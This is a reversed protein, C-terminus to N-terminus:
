RSPPNTGNSRLGLRVSTVRNLLNDESDRAVIFTAPVQVKDVELTLCIRGLVDLPLNNVCQVRDGMEVIDKPGLGLGNLYKFGLINAQAASDPQAKLIGLIRHSEQDKVLIEVM